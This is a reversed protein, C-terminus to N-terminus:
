EEKLEWIFGAFTKRKGRCVLSVKSRIGPLNSIGSLGNEQIFRAAELYTGFVQITEKTEKDKMLIIKQYLNSVVKTRELPIINKSKLAASVTDVSCNYYRATESINLFELYSEIIKDYDFSPTGEGGLTANYGRSGYCSYEQIWYQERESGLSDLTEEILEMSFNEPGYKAIAKHLPRNETKGTRTESLHEQWRLKLSRSTKGIYIKQNIQNTIKYIYTM